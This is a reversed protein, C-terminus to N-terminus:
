IINSNVFDIESIILNHHDILAYSSLPERSKLLKNKDVNLLLLVVLLPNTLGCLREGTKLDMESVDVLVEPHCQHHSHPISCHITNM